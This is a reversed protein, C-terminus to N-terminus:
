LIKNYRPYIKIARNFNSLAKDFLGIKGYVIGRNNYAMVYMSDIELSKNIEAIAEYYNEKNSFEIGKFLHVATNKKINQKLVDDIIKM